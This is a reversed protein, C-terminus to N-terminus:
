RPNDLDHLKALAAALDEVENLDVKSLVHSPRHLFKNTLRKSLEEIVLRPDRGQGLANLARRVEIERLSEGYNRFARLTPVVEFRHTQDSLQLIGRGIIEEADEIASKRIELNSRVIEELNDISFLFVDDMEGITPEIDRPVALDVLVMPKHKRLGLAMDIAGKGIIPLPSATCSIIVDFQSLRAPLDQLPFFKGGVKSALGEARQVTRNTFHLSKVGRGFFHDTCLEIMEGAGVFLVSRRALNSFIREAVKFAAAGISVAHSGIETQSRVDKGVSFGFQFLRALNGGIVEAQLARQYANKMQGFIQTEGLVMSELGSAVRILHEVAKSGSHVYLYHTLKDIELRAFNALWRAIVMEDYCHAYIETRNCTSLITVEEVGDLARCELLSERILEPAIALKERLAIPARGYDLGVVLTRPASIQV